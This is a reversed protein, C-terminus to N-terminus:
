LDWQYPCLWQASTQNAKAVAQAFTGGFREVPRGNAGKSPGVMEFGAHHGQNAADKIRTFGAYNLPTKASLSCMQFGIRGKFNRKLTEIARATWAKDHDGLDAVIITHGPLIRILSQVFDKHAQVMKDDTFGTGKSYINPSFQKYHWEANNAGMTHFHTVRSFDLLKSVMELMMMYRYQMISDWPAPAPGIIQAGLGKLWDPSEDGALIQLQVMKGLRKARDLQQKLFAVKFSSAKPEITKWRVRLVFGDCKQLMADSVNQADIEQMVYVKRLVATQIKGM